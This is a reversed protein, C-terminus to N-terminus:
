KHTSGLKSTYQHTIDWVQNIEAITSRSQFDGWKCTKLKNPKVLNQLTPTCNKKEVDRKGVEGGM